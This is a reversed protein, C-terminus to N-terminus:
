KLDELSDIGLERSRFTAGARGPLSPDVVVHNGGLDEDSRDYRAGTILRNLYGRQGTECDARGKEDVAPSYYQRHLTELDDGTASTAEQNNESSPLDVPRDGASDSYRNDQTAADSRLLVRQGMGGPLPESLHEGIGTWYYMWYNCVTQYPAVFEVLPATVGLTRELDGLALLTKPNSALDDLSRFVEATRRHFPPADNLVPTGRRVATTVAPLEQELARAAPELERFLVEADALFPRQVPFARIGAELTAPSREIALRLRDPDRGLADFTTAMHGFLAAYSSAVPALEGAFRSAPGFLRALRTRPDSLNRMVPQLHTLFPVLGEITTNIASGRGALATGYGVFVKRQAARTADDYQSFFEDFEVPKTANELAIRDGAELVRRSTGPELQIYKLGLASRPRVRTATDAPLPAVAKDLKMEAVAIAKGSDPDVDPSITDVQGIRSGGIRVEAGRVLNSGSPLEASIEYTPVFPLGRNANYALLVAVCVILVTVAGVLLPNALISSATRRTM